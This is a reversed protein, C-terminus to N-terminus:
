THDTARVDRRVFVYALAWTGVAFVAGLLPMRTALLAMGGVMVAPYVYAFKFIRSMQCWADVGTDVAHISVTFRVGHM